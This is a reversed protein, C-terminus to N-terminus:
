AINYWLLNNPFFNYFLMQLSKGYIAILLTSITKINQESTVTCLAHNISTTSQNRTNFNSKLYRSFNHFQSYFFFLSLLLNIGGHKTPTKILKSSFCFIFFLQKKKRQRRSNIAGSCKTLFINNSHCHKSVVFWIKAVLLQRTNSLSKTNIFEELYSCLQQSSTPGKAMYTTIDLHFPLSQYGYTCVCKWIFYYSNHIM